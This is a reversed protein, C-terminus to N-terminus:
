YLIDILYFNIGQRHVRGFEDMLNFYVFFEGYMGSERLQLLTKISDNGDGNLLVEDCDVATVWWSVIDMDDSIVSVSEPNLHALGDEVAEGGQFVIIAPEPTPLVQVPEPATQFLSAAVAFITAICVASVTAITLMLGQKAAATVATATGSNIIGYCNAVLSQIISENAVGFALADYQLTSSIALGASVSGVARGDSSSYMYDDVGHKIKKNALSLQKSVCQFSIDMVKAIETIKLDEYYRLAVIERQRDPLESILGKVVYRLEANELSAVPVFDNREEILSDEVYECLEVTTGRKMQDRLYNNKRNVIITSLWKRFAKPKKLSHIYRCVDYMVEQAIDEAGEQKGLFFTSLYLVDRSINNCLETLADKDGNIANEVLIDFDNKASVDKITNM